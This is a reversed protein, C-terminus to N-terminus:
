HDASADHSSGSQGGERRGRTGGDARPGWKPGEGEEEGDEADHMLQADLAVAADFVNPTSSASCLWQLAQCVCLVAGYRCVVQSDVDCIHGLQPQAIPCESSNPTSGGENQQADGSDAVGRAKGNESTQGDPAADITVGTARSEGSGIAGSSPSGSAGANSAPNPSEVGAQGSVINNYVSAEVEADRVPLDASHVDCAYQLITLLVVLVSLASVKKTM